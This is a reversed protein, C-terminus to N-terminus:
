IVSYVMLDCLALYDGGVPKEGWMNAWCLGSLALATMPVHNYQVHIEQVLSSIDSM